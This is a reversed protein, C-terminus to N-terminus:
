AFLSMGHHGRHHGRRKRARVGFGAPMRKTVWLESLEDGSQVGIELNNNDSGGLEPTTHRRYCGAEELQEALEAAFEDGGCRDCHLEEIFERVAANRWTEPRTEGKDKPEVHGGTHAWKM